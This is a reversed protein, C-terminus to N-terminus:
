LEGKFARQQLSAFLADFKSLHLKNNRKVSLLHEITKQFTLQHQYPPKVVQIEAMDLKDFRRTGHAAVSISALIRKKMSDLASKLFFVDFGKAPNIAKMDQNISINVLNIATPFSHALIMGRVVILLCGPKIRKLNTKEFATGTVHDISDTIYDVKMDKPSVWPIDGNWFKGVKKSPTAGSIFTGIETLRVTEWEKPNTVPDGFMDLFVSQILEDLKAIAQRRKERLADAKDLITAIRKQEPLPPLPIRIRSVEAPRARLLSGGVGSVTKMLRAHFWDSILFHKLYDPWLNEGRFIIWESSAIMRHGSYNGVVWARRIHPVIKCLLVDNPQIIQKTSGIMSGSIIEPCRTDFSPVSYLEFIEDLHKSPNISGGKKVIMKEAKVTTQKM